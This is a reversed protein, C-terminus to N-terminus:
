NGLRVSIRKHNIRLHLSIRPDFFHFSVLERFSFLFIEMEKVGL